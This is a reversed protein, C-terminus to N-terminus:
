PHQLVESDCQWWCNCSLTMGLVIKSYPTQKFL